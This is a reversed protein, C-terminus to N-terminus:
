SHVYGNKFGLCRLHGRCPRKGVGCWHSIQSDQCWCLGTTSLTCSQKRSGMKHHPHQHAYTSSSCWYSNYKSSNPPQTHVIPIHPQSNEKTPLPVLSTVVRASALSGRWPQMSAIRVLATCQTIGSTPLQPSTVKTKIADFVKWKQWANRWLVCSSIPLVTIMYRSLSMPNSSLIYQPGSHFCFPNWWPKISKTM